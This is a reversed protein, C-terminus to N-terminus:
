STVAISANDIITKRSSFAKIRQEFEIGLKRKLCKDGTTGILQGPSRGNLYRFVNTYSILAQQQVASNPKTLRVQHMRYTISNKFLMRM